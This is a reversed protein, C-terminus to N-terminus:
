KYIENIIKVILDEIGTNDADVMTSKGCAPMGILSINDKVFLSNM